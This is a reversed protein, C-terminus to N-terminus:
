DVGTCVNWCLQHSKGTTWRVVSPDQGVSDTFELHPTFPCVMITPEAPEGIGEEKVKRKLTEMIENVQPRDFDDRAKIIAEVFPLNPGHIKAFTWYDMFVMSSSASLMSVVMNLVEFNLQLEQPPKHTAFFEFALDIDSKILDIATPM